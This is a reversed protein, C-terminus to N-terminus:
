CKHPKVKYKVTVAYRKRIRVPSTAHQTLMCMISILSCSKPTAVIENDRCLEPVVDTHTNVNIHCTTPQGHRKCGTSIVHM